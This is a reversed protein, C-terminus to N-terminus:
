RTTFAGGNVHLTQGTIHRAGPSALFSVTEAIDDPTGPRKTHTEQVLSRHREDTMRGRFFGTGAVYGASVVNCTIGRPGLEASLSANWAALAAKAAGYSGGRREAGISGISVVASGETLLDQVSATTLVAGLLNQALAEQWQGLLAELPAADAPAPDPLGGAANVLVDLRPGLRRGLAAVQGPDTADCVVGHVGLEGATREVSDAHRGTVFVEARAAPGDRDAALRAAVARGIGSTAGTVLVTRPM